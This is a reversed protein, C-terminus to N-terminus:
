PTDMATGSLLYSGLDAAWGATTLEPVEPGVPDTAARRGLRAAPPVPGSSARIALVPAILPPTPDLADGGVLSRLHAWAQRGLEAQPVTATTLSPTAFRALEIDDFGTISVDGPVAVGLENLRALLGFAVLDNYAVVATARSALVDQAAAYGSEVSSGAPRESLRM